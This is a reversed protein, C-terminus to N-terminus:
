SKINLTMSTMFLSILLIIPLKDIVSAIVNDIVNAINGAYSTM